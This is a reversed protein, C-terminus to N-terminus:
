EMEATSIYQGQGNEVKATQENLALKFLNFSDKCLQILDLREQRENESMEPKKEEFNVM